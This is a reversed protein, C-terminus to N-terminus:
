SNKGALRKTAMWKTIEPLCRKPTRPLAKWEHKIKKELDSNLFVVEDKSTYVFMFTNEGVGEAAEASFKASLVQAVCSELGAYRNYKTAFLSAM